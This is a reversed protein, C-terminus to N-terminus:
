RRLPIIKAGGTQGRARRTSRERDLPSQTLCTSRADLRQKLTDLDEPRLVERAIPLLLANEWQIHRRQSVFFGRLMYGLMDANRPQGAFALVDLEEAIELAYSEDTEHEHELQSLISRIPYELFARERLLPFLDHEEFRMHAPLGDSLQNAAIRAHLRNLHNPLADAIQELTDCLALLSAHESELVAIPDAHWGAGDARPVAPKSTRRESDTM